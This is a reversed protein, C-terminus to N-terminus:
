GMARAWVEVAGDRSPSPFHYVEVSVAGLEGSHGPSACSVASFSDAPLWTVMHLPPHGKLLLGRGAGGGGGLVLFHKENLCYPAIWSDIEFSCVSMTKTPSKRFPLNIKWEGCNNGRSRIGNEARILSISIYAPAVLLYNHSSLGHGSLLFGKDLLIRIRSTQAALHPGPIETGNDRPSGGVTSDASPAPACCAQWGPWPAEWVLERGLMQGRGQLSPWAAPTWTLNERKGRFFYAWVEKPGSYLNISRLVIPEPPLQHPKNQDGMFLSEPSGSLM